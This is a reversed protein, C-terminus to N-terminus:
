EYGYKKKLESMIEDETLVGGKMETIKEILKTKNKLIEYIDQEIIDGVLNIVVKKRTSNIRHIRDARQLMTEINPTIEANILLDAEDLNVGFALTDTAVLVRMSPDDKFKRYDERNSSDVCLTKIGQGELYKTIKKAFRAFSTFIIARSTTEGLIHHIEKCKSDDYFLIGDPPVKEKKKMSIISRSKSTNLTDDCDLIRLLTFVRFFDDGTRKIDEGKTNEILRKKISNKALRGKVMRWRIVKDPLFKAVQDKRKRDYYPRIIEIFKDINKMGVPINYEEGRIFRTQFVIFERNFQWIPIFEPLLFQMINYYDYLSNSVPTGTLAIRYVANRCAYQIVQTRKSKYNKIYSAEDIIVTFEELKLTKFHRAFFAYSCIVWSKDPKKKQGKRQYQVIHKRESWIKIEDEWQTKLSAPCIILTKCGTQQSIVDAAIISTVTKGLGMEFGVLFGNEDAAFNDIIRKVTNKQFPYLRELNPHTYTIKKIKTISPDMDCDFTTQLLRANGVSYPIMWIKTPRDYKYGLFKQKLRDKLKM